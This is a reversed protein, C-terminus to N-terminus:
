PQPPNQSPGQGLVSLLPDISGHVQCVVQLGTVQVGSVGAVHDLKPPAGAFTAEVTLASLHRMEALTGLEVLEGARLIAVRDCLAAVEELVHSSLFVTQGASKAELV